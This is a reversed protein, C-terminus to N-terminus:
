ADVKALVDRAKRWAENYRANLKLEPPVSRILERLAAVLEARENVCCVIHASCFPCETDAPARGTRAENTEYPSSLPPGLTPTHKTNM